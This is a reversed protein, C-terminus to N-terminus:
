RGQLLSLALQPAQNAQALITNSAQQLIQNRSLNSSEMAVDVNRIRSESSSLNEVGISLNNITGELRNVFAGLNGRKTNVATLASDLQTLFARAATGTPIGTSMSSGNWSTIGLAVATSTGLASAVNIVDNATNNAGVQLIFNAPTGTSALLNVGNFSASNAIRDIDTLLQTIEVQMASRQQGNYTDNGAQVTLERIRQLSDTITQLSGDAINLVNLGDQTNDLAKNSGRIQARLKESLQLGAADDGAKNIRYGSSLKEMTKQLDRTNNGLYRQATLSSVNTNIVLPM